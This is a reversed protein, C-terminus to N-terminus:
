YSITLQSGGSICTQTKADYYCDSTPNIPTAASFCSLSSASTSNCSICQQSNQTTLSCSPALGRTKGTPLTVDNTTTNNTGTSTGTTTKSGGTSSQNAKGDITIDSSDDDESTKKDKQKQSKDDSKSAESGDSSAGKKQSAQAGSGTRQVPVPADGERTGCGWILVSFITSFYAAKIKPSWFAM